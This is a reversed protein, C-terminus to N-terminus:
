TFIAEYRTGFADQTIPVIFIDDAEDGRSLRYIAQPLVPDAPGLFTLAFAGGPRASHGLPRAEELTLPLNGDPGAVEYREGVNAAFDEIGPDRAQDQDSV